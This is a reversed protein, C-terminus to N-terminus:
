LIWIKPKLQKSHSVLLNVIKHSLEGEFKITRFQLLRRLNFFRCFWFFCGVFLCVYLFMLLHEAWFIESKGLCLQLVTSDM